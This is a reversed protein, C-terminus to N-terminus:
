KTSTELQEEARRKDYGNHYACILAYLERKSVYGSYLVDRCGGQENVIQHLKWGGYAGSIHYNGMQAVLKGDIRRYTELPNGTTQNLLEVRTELINQTIRNTM